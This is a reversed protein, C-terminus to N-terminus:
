AFGAAPRSTHIPLTVEGPVSSSFVFGHFTVSVRGGKQFYRIEAPDIGAADTPFEEGNCDKMDYTFTMPTDFQADFGAQGALIMGSKQDRVANDFGESINVGNIYRPYDYSTGKFGEGQSSVGHWNTGGYDTGDAAQVFLASQNNPFAAATGADAQALESHWTMIISIYRFEPSLSGDPIGDQSHSTFSSKVVTEDTADPSEPEGTTDTNPFGVQAFFAQGSKVEIRFGTGNASDFIEQNDYTVLKGTQNLSPFNANEDNGAILTVGPDLKSFDMAFSYEYAPGTEFTAAGPSKSMSTGIGLKM